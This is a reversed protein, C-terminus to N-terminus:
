RKSLELEAMKKRQEYKQIRELSVSLSELCQALILYESSIPDYDEMKDFIRDIHVEIATTKASM